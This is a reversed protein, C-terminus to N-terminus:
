TLKNHTTNLGLRIVCPLNYTHIHVRTQLQSFYNQLKDEQAQVEKDTMSDILHYLFFSAKEPPSPFVCVFVCLQSCGDQSYIENAVTDTVADM